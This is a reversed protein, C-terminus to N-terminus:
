QVVGKGLCREYRCCWALKARSGEKTRAGPYLVNNCEQCFRIAAPFRVATDAMKSISPIYAKELM